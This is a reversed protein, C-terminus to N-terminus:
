NSAIRWVDASRFLMWVASLFVFLAFGFNSIAYIYFSIGCIVSFIIWLLKDGSIDVFIGIFSCSRAFLYVFMSTIWFVVIFAVGLAISAFIFFAMMFIM